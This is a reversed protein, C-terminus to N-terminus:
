KIKNLQTVSALGINRQTLSISINNQCLNNIKNSLYHIIHTDKDKFFLFSEFEFFESTEQSRM